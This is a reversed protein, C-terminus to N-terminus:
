NAYKVKTVFGSKDPWSFALGGASVRCEKASVAEAEKFIFGTGHLVRVTEPEGTVPNKIPELAVSVAGGIKVSSNRGNLNFQCPALQPDQVKWFTTVIIEFPLGGEKGSAIRLM